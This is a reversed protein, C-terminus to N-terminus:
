ELEISIYRLKGERQIQLVAADGPKLEDLMARLAKVTLTPTQNMQYIVDGPELTPGSYPPSAGRAAVVIGFQQRLGPLMDSLKKNIEIGLVGLKSILNDDPNVMDAFRQPDDDREIVPITFDMQKGDRLVRVSVVESLKLRAIATELQAADEMIAGNLSLVIDRVKMGEKEAPGDPTVDSAVVGWDQSLKLGKALAPTITQTVIGLQGRHVHGDKRIQDYVNRVANSPIAFGLGESGGSQSLIFTNLGIVRGEVDVLPGGSNGPNIPADTQVYALPEDAHLRRSISSVVGMSVSGELGLPNGFAMVVQGQKLENSNGLPLFPLNAREVKLVAVDTVRDTGVLRAPLMAVREETRNTSALRVEIKRAGQVVHNNTVIYGDATLIAGAGTAHQTSLLSSASTGDSETSTVYGTSFIQVVAPRVRAALDEFSASLERLSAPQPKAQAPKPNAQAAVFPAFALNAGLLLIFTARM